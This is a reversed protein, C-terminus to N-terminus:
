PMDWVDFLRVWCSLIWGCVVLDGFCIDSPFQCNGQMLVEGFDSCRGKEIEILVVVVVVVVGEGLVGVCAGRPSPSACGMLKGVEGCRWGEMWEVSDFLGSKVGEWGLFGLKGCLM